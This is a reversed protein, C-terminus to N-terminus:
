PTTDESGVDNYKYYQTSVIAFGSMVRIKGDPLDIHPDLYINCPKYRILDSFITQWDTDSPLHVLLGYTNEPVVPYKIDNRGTASCLWEYLWPMTFRNHPVWKIKLRAKRQRLTDTSNPVIDLEKEWQSVGEETATDIFQNEMLWSVSDWLEDIIPQQVRAIEQMDRISRIVPPWYDLLKRGNTYTKEVFTVVFTHNETVNRLLYFGGRRTLTVDGFVSVGDLLVDSIRWGIDSSINLLIDEWQRVSIKGESKQGETELTVSGGTNVDVIVDHEFRRFTATLNVAHAPMTFQREASYVDDSWGVFRYGDSPEATLPLTRSYYEYHVYSPYDPDDPYPQGSYVIGGVNDGDPSYVLASLKYRKATVEIELTGGHTINELVIQYQNNDLKTYDIEDTIYPDTSRDVFWVSDIECGVPATYIFAVTDGSRASVKEPLVTGIDETQVRTTYLETTIECEYKEFTAGITYSSLTDTDDITIEEDSKEIGTWGQFHYYDAAIATYHLTVKERLFTGFDGIIEGNEHTGETITILNDTETASVVTEDTVIGIEAAFDLTQEVADLLTEDDRTVTDLSWGDPAHFTFTPTSGYDVVTGATVDDGNEDTVTVHEDVDFTVPVQVRAFVVDISHPEQVTDLTHEWLPEDGVTQVVGDLSISSIYFGVYAAVTIKASAFRTISAPASVDGGDTTTVTLPFSVTKTSLEITLNGTVAGEYVMVEGGSSGDIESAAGGNVKVLINQSRTNWGTAYVRISDGHAVWTANNTISYVYQGNLNTVRCSGTSSQPLTVKYYIREWVAEFRLDTDQSTPLNNAAYTTGNCQWGKFAYGTKSVSPATARSGGDVTQTKALTGDSYFRAYYKATYTVKLYLDKMYLKQEFISAYNIGFLEVAFLSSSFAQATMKANRFNYDYKHYDNDNSGTSASDGASASGYITLRKANIAYSTLELPDLVWAMRDVSGGKQEYQVGISALTCAGSLRRQPSFDFGIVGVRLPNGGKPVTRYDSSGNLIGEFASDATICIPLLTLTKNM